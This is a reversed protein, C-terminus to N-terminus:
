RKKLYEMLEGGMGVSDHATFSKIIERSLEKDLKPDYIFYPDFRRKVRALEKKFIYAPHGGLPFALRGEIELCSSELTL